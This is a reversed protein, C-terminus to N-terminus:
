EDRGYTGRKCCRAKNSARQAPASLNLWSACRYRTSNGVTTSSPALPPHITLPCDGARKPWGQPNTNPSARAATLEARHTDIKVLEQLYDRCAALREDRSYGPQWPRAVFERALDLARDQVADCVPIATIQPQFLGSAPSIQRVVESRILYTAGCHPNQCAAYQERMADHQQHSGQIRMPAGCAPCPFHRLPQSM